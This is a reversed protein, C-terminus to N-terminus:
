TRGKIALWGCIKSAMEQHDKIPNDLHYNMMKWMAEVDEKNELTIVIPQFEPNQEIKM